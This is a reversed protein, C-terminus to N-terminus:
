KKKQEPQTQLLKEPMFGNDNGREFESNMYSFQEDTIKEKVIEYGNENKRAVYLGEKHFHGLVIKAQEKMSSGQNKLGIQRGIQNNLLDISQDTESLTTFQRISLDVKPNEEHSNGAHLAIEEGYKATIASQWLTHRFANIQSGEKAKNEQLVGDKNIESKGLTAFRVANTSINTSGKEPTGINYAAIPHAAGFM